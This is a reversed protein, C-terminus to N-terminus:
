GRGPRRSTCPRHAEHRARPDPRPGPRGRGLLLREHPRPLTPDRDATGLDPRRDDRPQRGPRGAPDGHDAALFRLPVQRGV